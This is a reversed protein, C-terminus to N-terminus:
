GGKIQSRVESASVRRKRGNPGFEISDQAQMPKPGSQVRGGKNFRRTARVGDGEPEVEFGGVNVSTDVRRRRQRPAQVPIEEVMEGRDLDFSMRDNRTQEPFIARVNSARVEDRRADAADQSRAGAVVPEKRVAGGKKYAKKMPGPSLTQGVGMIGAGPGAIPTQTPGPAPTPRPPMPRPVMGGVAMQRPRKVVGGKAYGRVQAKGRCRSIDGM